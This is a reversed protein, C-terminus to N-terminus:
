IRDNPLDKLKLNNKTSNVGNLVFLNLNIILAESASNIINQETITSDTSRCKPCIIDDLTTPERFITLLDYVTLIKSIMEQPVTINLIPDLSDQLYQYDCQTNSCKKSLTTTHAVPVNLYAYREFLM